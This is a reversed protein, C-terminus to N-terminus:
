AVQSMAAQENARVVQVFAIGRVQALTMDLAGRLKMLEKQFGLEREVRTQIRGLMEDILPSQGLTPTYVDTCSNQPRDLPRPLGGIIVGAVDSAMEGFRPDTVHRVLFSLIPELTVDDRGSLAIQLGDRQTLEQILAFTTSPRVDQQDARDVGPM